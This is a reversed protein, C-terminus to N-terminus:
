HDTPGDKVKIIEQMKKPMTQILKQTTSPQINEWELLIKAKLDEKNKIIYKKLNRKIEGWLYEIANIDPSEPPKHLQKPVNYLAWEKVKMAM